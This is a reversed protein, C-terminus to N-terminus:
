GASLSIGPGPLTLLVLKADSHTRGGQFPDDQRCGKQCGDNYCYLEVPQHFDIGKFLTLKIGVDHLADAAQESVELHVIGGTGM